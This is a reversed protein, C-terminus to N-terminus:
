NDTPGIPENAVQVGAHGFLLDRSILSYPAVNFVPERLTGIPETTGYSWGAADLSERITKTAEPGTGQLRYGVGGSMTFDFGTRSVEWGSGELTEILFDSLQDDPGFYRVAAPERTVVEATFVLEELRQLRDLLEPLADAKVQLEAILDDKGDIREAQTEIRRELEAVIGGWRWDMVFWIVGTAVTALGLLAAFFIRPARMIEAGEHKLIEWVM